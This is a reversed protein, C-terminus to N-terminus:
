SDQYRSDDLAKRLAEAKDQEPVQAGGERTLEAAEAARLEQLPRPRVSVWKGCHPCPTLKGLGLNLGLLSLAFPRGCKPCIAGGSLGYKRPQGLLVNGHRRSTLLTALVLALLIVAVLGVIPLIVRATGKGAAAATLFEVSIENSRLEAGGSTAGVASLTHTGPPFSDTQFQLKFRPQTAEGMSQGDILFTVKQLDAPGLATLTFLGQIQGFGGYGWDRGLSLKLAQGSQARARPAAVLCLTLLMLLCVRRAKM